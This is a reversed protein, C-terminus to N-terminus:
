GRDPNEIRELACLWKRGTLRTICLKGDSCSLFGPFHTDEKLAGVDPELNTFGGVSGLLLTQPYGPFAGAGSQGRRRGGRRAVMRDLSLPGCALMKPRQRGSAQRPVLGEMGWAVLFLSRSAQDHAMLGLKKWSNGDHRM